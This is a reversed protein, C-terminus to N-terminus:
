HYTTLVRFSRRGLGQALSGHRYGSNNLERVYPSRKVKNNSPFFYTMPDGVKHLFPIKRFLVLAVDLDTWLNTVPLKNVKETMNLNDRVLSSIQSIKVACFLMPRSM